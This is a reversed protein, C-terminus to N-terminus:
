GSAALLLQAAFYLPLGVIRNWRTKAVFQQRAVLVDSAAFAVAGLPIRVDLADGQTAFAAVVMVSIVVVYVVLPMRLEDPRHPALWKLIVTGFAVMVAASMVLIVPDISGRVIFAGAYVVHAGAFAGLGVIFARRGEFSLALDGAWSLILAGLLVWMYPSPDQTSWVLFGIVATSASMKLFRGVHSNADEFVAAGLALAIVAAVWIM